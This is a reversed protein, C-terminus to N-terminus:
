YKPWGIHLALENSFVRISPFISPLFLLPCCLILHNFPMVLETSMIKVFNQSLTFVQSAQYIATWSTVFLQVHSLLQVVIIISEPKPGFERSTLGEQCEREHGLRMRWWVVAQGKNLACPIFQLHSFGKFFVIGKCLYGQNALTGLGKEVENKLVWRM